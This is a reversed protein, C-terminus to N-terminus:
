VELRMDQVATKLLTPGDSIQDLKANAQVKTRAGLM